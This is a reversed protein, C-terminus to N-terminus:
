ENTRNTEWTMYPLRTLGVAQMLADEHMAVTECSLTGFSHSAWREKARQYAERERGIPQFGFWREYWTMGTHLFYFLGLRCEMGNSCRITSQDTLQIRTAGHAYAFDIMFQVMARTGTGREMAGDITCRPDYEISDIVAIHDEKDIALVVYPRDPNWLLARIDREDEDVEVKYSGLTTADSYRGGMYRRLQDTRQLARLSRFM